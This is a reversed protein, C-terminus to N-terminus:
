FFRGVRVELHILFEFLPPAGLTKTPPRSVSRDIDELLEHMRLLADAPTPATM